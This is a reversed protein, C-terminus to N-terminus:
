AKKGKVRKGGAELRYHRLSCTVERDGKSQVQLYPKCSAEDSIM